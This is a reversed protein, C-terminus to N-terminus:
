SEKLRAEAADLREETDASVKSRVPEYQKLTNEEGDTWDAYVPSVFICPEIPFTLATKDQFRITIGYYGTEISVEVKEVIKGVVEPFEQQIEPKM